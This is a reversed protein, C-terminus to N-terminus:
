TSLRCLQNYKIDNKHRKIKQLKNIILVKYKKHRFHRFFLYFITSFFISLPLYIYIYLPFINKVNEYM